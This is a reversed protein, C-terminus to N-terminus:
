RTHAGHPRDAGPTGAVRALASSGHLGAGRGCWLDPVSGGCRGHRDPSVGREHRTRHLPVRLRGHGGGPAVLQRCSGTDATSPCHRQVAQVSATLASTRGCRGCHSPHSSDIARRLGDTVVGSRTGPPPAAQKHRVPCARPTDLVGGRAAAIASRRTVPSDGCTRASSTASSPGPLGRALPRRGGTEGGSLVGACFKPRRSPELASLGRALSTWREPVSGADVPARRRM